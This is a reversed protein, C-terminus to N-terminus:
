GRPYCRNRRRAPTWLQQFVEPEEPRPVAGMLQILETRLACLELQMSDIRAALRQYYMLAAPSKALLAGINNVENAKRSVEELSEDSNLLYYRMSAATHSLYACSANIGRLMLISLQRNLSEFDPNGRRVWFPRDISTKENWHKALLTFGVDMLVRKGSKRIQLQVRRTGDELQRPHLVVKFSTQHPM